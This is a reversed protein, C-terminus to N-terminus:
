NVEGNGTQSFSFQPPKGGLLIALEEWSLSTFAGAAFVIVPSCRPGFKHNL